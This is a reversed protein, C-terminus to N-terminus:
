LRTGHPRADGIGERRRRVLYIGRWAGQGGRHFFPSRHTSLLNNPSVSVWGRMCVVEGQEVGEGMRIAREVRGTTGRNGDRGAEVTLHIM